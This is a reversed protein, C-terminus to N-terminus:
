SFSLQPALELSMIRDRSREYNKRSKRRSKKTPTIEKVTSFGFSLMWLEQAKVFLKVIEENQELYAKFRRINAPADPRLDPLFPQGAFAAHIQAGAHQILEFFKILNSRM